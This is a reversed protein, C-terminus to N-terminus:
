ATVKLNSTATLEEQMQEPRKVQDTTKGSLIDAVHQRRIAVKRLRGEM